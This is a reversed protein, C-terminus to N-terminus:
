PPFLTFSAPHPYLYPVPHFLCPVSLSCPSLPLSFPPLSLFPNSLFLPPPFILMFLSSLNAFLFHSPRLCSLSLIPIHIRLLNSLFYFSPFLSVFPFFPTALPLFCNIPFFLSIVLLPPSPPLPNSHLFAAYPTLHLSHSTSPPPPSPAPFAFNWTTVRTPLAGISCTIIYLLVYRYSASRPKHTM